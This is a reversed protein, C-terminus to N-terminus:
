DNRRRFPCVELLLDLDLKIPRRQCHQILSDTDIKEGTVYEPCFSGISQLYDRFKFGAGAVKNSLKIWLSPIGYADALIMGHLSSSAINKCRLMSTIVEAPSSQIDIILTNSNLNRLRGDLKDVYHPVIGLEYQIPVEPKFFRPMLLAPDGYIKPCDVRHSLLYERTLPGRVACVKKPKIRLPGPRLMGSGWIITNRSSRKVLSGVTFYHDFAHDKGAVVYEPAQGTIYSVLLPGLMDGCNNRGSFWALKIPKM